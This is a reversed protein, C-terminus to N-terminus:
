QFECEGAHHKPLNCRHKKENIKPCCNQQMGRPSDEHEKISEPPKPFPLCEGRHGKKLYCDMMETDRLVQKRCCQDQSM